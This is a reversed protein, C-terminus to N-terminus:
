KVFQSWIFETPVKRGEQALEILFKASHEVIWEFNEEQVSSLEADPACNLYDIAFPVGDQVAFEITDFDYGLTNVIKLCYDELQAKREETLTFGAKYRLHHPNRPEYPMIHIYKKGLVYCRYYEQFDVASQLTM